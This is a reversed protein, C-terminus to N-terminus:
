AERPRLFALGIRVPATVMAGVLRLAGVALELGMSAAGPLIREEDRPRAEAEREERRLSLERSAAETRRRLDDMASGAAAEIRRAMEAAEVATGVDLAAAQVATDGGPMPEVRPPEALRLSPRERAEAAAAQREM